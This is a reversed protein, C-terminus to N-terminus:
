PMEASVAALTAAITRQLDQESLAVSCPLTLIRQWLSTSVSVDGRSANKYPLQLHMPKWFPRADIGSERLRARINGARSGAEPALVVGSMWCASDGWSCHPFGALAPHGAFAADYSQRIHRKAAIFQPLREMQACGVAAEINTLRYNYGVSDHDYDAGVRATSGIHRARAILMADAGVIAGGGGSTVTKNGNFSIATLTAGMQALPKGKYTAGLAAAGDAVVPLGYRSALACLPDMDVPAGLTYTPMIAAIRRGTPAHILRGGDMRTQGAFLRELAPVDLMWSESQVDILWPRAGCHSIANASAIFTLDPLIVLDDRGVGVTTLALHLASTGSCTTVTDAAGTSETLLAEFRKVFPGVSSVYTTQICEQLYAAENGSVDPVALPIMPANM